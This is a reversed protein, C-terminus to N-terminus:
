LNEFVKKLLAESDQWFCSIYPRFSTIRHRDTAFPTAFMKKTTIYGNLVQPPRSVSDQGITANDWPHRNPQRAYCTDDHNEARGPLPNNVGDGITSWWARPALSDAYSQKDHKTEWFAWLFSRDVKTQVDFLVDIRNEGFAVYKDSNAVSFYSGRSISSNPNSM